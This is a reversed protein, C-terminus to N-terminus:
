EATEQIIIKHKQEYEKVDSLEYVVQGRIRIYSPGARKKSVRWNAITKLKRNWRLALEEPTIFIKDDAM